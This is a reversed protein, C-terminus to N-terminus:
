VFNIVDFVWWETQYCYLMQNKECDDNVLVKGRDLGQVVDCFAGSSSGRERLRASTKKGPTIEIV